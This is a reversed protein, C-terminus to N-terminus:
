CAHSQDEKLIDAFRLLERHKSCLTPQSTSLLQDAEWWDIDPNRDLTDRAARGFLEVLYFEIVDVTPLEVGGCTKRSEAPMELHLRPVSSVIYDKDRRLNLQWAIERSIAERFSEQELRDTEILTWETEPRQHVLWRQSKGFWGRVLAIATQELVTAPSNM